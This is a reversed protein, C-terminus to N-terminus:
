IGRKYFPHHDSNATLNWNFDLKLSDSIPANQRSAFGRLGKGTRTGFVILRRDKLRGVMDVNIALRIATLPITPTTMWHKSGLLGLEEADWFVFVISRRMAPQLTSLAEAIELVAATGSANDDAGNHIQGLPGRSTIKTGLGVHDYHAGVLVFEKKLEPDSGPLVALINRYGKDSFEQYFDGDSGVPRLALRRLQQVIYNGAARGGDTGAARGELADSALTNIHRALDQRLITDLASVPSAPEATSGPTVAVLVLLVTLITVSERAITQGHTREHLSQNTM